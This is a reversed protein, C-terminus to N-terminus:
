VLSGSRSSTVTTCYLSRKGPFMNNKEIHGSSQSQLPTGQSEIEIASRALFLTQLNEFSTRTKPVGSVLTAAKNLCLESLINESNHCGGFNISRVSV